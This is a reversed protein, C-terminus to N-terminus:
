RFLWIPYRATAEPPPITLESVVDPAHFRARWFSHTLEGREFKLEPHPWDRAPDLHPALFRLGLRPSPRDAALAWLSPDSVCASLTAVDLIAGVTWTSYHFSRTRKLEAPLSGDAAMQPALRQTPFRAIVHTAVEPLDAYLAFHALLLDYFIGHNNDAAREARGLPSTALWQVLAAFWDRLAAHEAETLAGSPELLAVSEVIPMLWRADIVGEKRGSARGPVGQAFDFNPLMGREGDLLFLRVWRAAADAYRQDGTLFFALALAEVTESFQQLRPLDFNPGNREPNTRGDRRVYPANPHQPDPWWYPALSQYHRKSAGRQSRPKDTVAIPPATLAANAAAIAASAGPVAQDAAFATRAAILGDAPWLFTRYGFTARYGESGACAASVGEAGLLAGSLVLLAGITASRRVV